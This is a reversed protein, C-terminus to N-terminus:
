TWLQPHSPMESSSNGGPMGEYWDPLVDPTVTFDEDVSAPNGAPNAPESPNSVGDTQGPVYGVATSTAYKLVNGLTSVEADTQCAAAYFNPDTAL